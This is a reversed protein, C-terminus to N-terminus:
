LLEKVSNLVYTPTEQPPAKKLDEFTAEGSLVLVTDVGANNGAAVDTYLRDGIVVTEAATYGFKQMVAYIMEPQPKGIFKPKKGTALYLSHCMAGCDPIYGFEVPCVWDPNTAYYPLEYKTLMKCTTYVKEGTTEPDFGVLIACAGDTYETTVKLGNERLEEILSATGQVYILCDKYSKKLFAVTAQASTYFHEETIQKLGLGHMKSAYEKLSKSANNTIFVYRGGDKEIKQLIEKVGEFLIKDLYVTGDMDFLFLKKSQLGSVNKGNLDEM